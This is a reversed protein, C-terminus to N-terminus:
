GNPIPPQRCDFAEVGELSPGGGNLEPCQKPLWLPVRGLTRGTTPQPDGASLSAKDLLLWIPRGPYRRRLERLFAQFDEQRQRPRRLVVRHGTRPNITGFLVRKANQGTIKVQTQEGRFGWAYRLPPFWRLITADSFLLVARAPMRKLRRILGRKEPGPEPGQDRLCVPSTELAPGLGAHTAPAYAALDGCGYKAQLHDALLSVTWGTANYGLRMPDRRFERVLRATTIAGAVRPRGSRPADRLRDPSTRRSMPEFGAM